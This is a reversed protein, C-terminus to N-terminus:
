KAKSLLRELKKDVQAIDIDVKATMDIQQKDGYKKANMRALKWKMNDAKLRLGAVEIATSATVAQDSVDDLEDFVADAYTERARTYHEAFAKDAALWEMVYTVSPMDDRKCIARLSEGETIQTVIEAKQRAIRQDRTETVLEKAVQKPTKAM